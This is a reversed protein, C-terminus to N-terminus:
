RGPLFEVIKESFSRRIMDRANPDGGAIAKMFHKAEEM